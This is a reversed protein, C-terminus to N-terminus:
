RWEVRLEDFTRVRTLLVSFTRWRRQHQMVGQVRQRVPVSLAGAPGAVTRHDTTVTFRADPSDGQLLVESRVLVLPGPARAFWLTAGDIHRQRRPPKMDARWVPRGDLRDAVLPGSARMRALHHPPLDAVRGAAELDTGHVREMRQTIREIVEPGVGEGDVEAREIRRTTGEAGREVHQVILMHRHFHATEVELNVSEVFAIRNAAEYAARQQEAWRTVMADARAPRQAVASAALLLPLIILIALRPM